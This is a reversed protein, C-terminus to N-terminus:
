ETKSSQQIRLDIIGLLPRFVEELQSTLDKLKLDLMGMGATKEIGVEKITDELVQLQDFVKKKKAELSEKEAVYTQLDKEEPSDIHEPLSM